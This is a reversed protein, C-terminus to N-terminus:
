ATVLLMGRTAQRFCRGGGHNGLKAVLATRLAVAGMSSAGAMVATLNALHQQLMGTTAKSAQLKLAAQTHQAYVLKQRKGQTAGTPQAAFAKTPTVTAMAAAYRAGPIAAALPNHGTGPAAPNAPAAPVVVAQLAAALTPVPKAKSNTTTPKTTNKVNAM